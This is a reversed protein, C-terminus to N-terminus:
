FVGRLGLGAPSLTLTTRPTTREARLPALLWLLLGTTALAGGAVFLGNAVDRHQIGDAGLQTQTLDRSLAEYRDLALAGFVAGTALTALGTIGLVWGATRVPGQRTLVAPATVGPPDPERPPVTATPPSEAVLVIRVETVEGAALRAHSQAMRYGAATARVVLDGPVFPLEVGLGSRSVPEDGVRVALDDLLPAVRLVLWGLGPRLAEAEARASEATAAYRPELRARASADRAARDLMVWAEATRGLRGLSRGLYMRTNPSDVTDLSAQFAARAEEYRGGHFHERGQQYLTQARAELTLAPAATAPVDQACASAARLLTLTVLTAAPPRM